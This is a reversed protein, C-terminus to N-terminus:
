RLQLNLVGKDLQGIEQLLDILQETEDKPINKNQDTLNYSTVDLLSQISSESDVPKELAYHFRYKKNISSELFKKEVKKKFELVYNRLEEDESAKSSVSEERTGPNPSKSNQKEICFSRTQSKDQKYRKKNVASKSSKKDQFEISIPGENETLKKLLKKQRMKTTSTEGQSHSTMTDM